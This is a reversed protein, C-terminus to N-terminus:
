HGRLRCYWSSAVLLWATEEYHTAYLAWQIAARLNDYEPLLRAFCAAVERGRLHYDAGRFLHLYFLYHRQRASEEEGQLRLKELAFERITELLSFRQEGTTTTKVGVLSKAILSRLIPIPSQLSVNGFGWDGIGEVAALDVGGVFVGLRRFLAQEETSLLDYSYQIAARLTRQHPPLDLAGDVLMDLSHDQLQVLLQASTFIEVQAACLELALPLCDLRTCIAALTSGNHETHRFDGDVTQARQVFLEVAPALALPPVSFRQEARLHLRERSTALVTVGPCEALLTAILSSAGDIQELNDLVLLLSQRRLREILRNQPPQPSTDGPAVTALITAAMWLPESVPALPVFCAGERYHHEIHAVVALALTTKGVGPPGILTLLRVGHGLLRNGIQQISEDRGIVQIPLAPLSHRGQTGVARALAHPAANRYQAPLHEGRATAAAEILRAALAPDGQLGLAPVFRQIVAELDPQRQATELSSVLSDSYGLAAALDRQTMGARKRVQRLLVGFPLTLSM